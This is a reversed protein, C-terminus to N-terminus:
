AVQTDPTNTNLSAYESSIRWYKTNIRRDLVVYDPGVFGPSYDCKFLTIEIQIIMKPQYWNTVNQAAEKHGVM